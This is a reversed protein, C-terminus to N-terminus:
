TIYLAAADPAASRARGTQGSTAVGTRGSTADRTHGCEPQVLLEIPELQAETTDEAPSYPDASEVPHQGQATYCLSFSMLLAFLISILDWWRKPPLSVEGIM